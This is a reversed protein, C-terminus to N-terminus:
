EFSAYPWLCHLFQYNLRSIVRCIERLQAFKATMQDLRNKEIMCPQWYTTSSLIDCLFSAKLSSTSHVQLGSKFTIISLFRCLQIEDCDEVCVRSFTFSNERARGVTQKRIFCSGHFAWDRLSPPLRLKDWISAQGYNREFMNEFRMITLNIVTAKVLTEVNNHSPIRKYCTTYIM